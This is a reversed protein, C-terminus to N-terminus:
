RAQAALMEATVDNTVANLAGVVEHPFLVGSYRNIEASARARSQVRRCPRDHTMADFTDAVAILYNELAIEHGKLGFPYGLGDLRKHHQEILLGLFALPTTELLQKGARPHASMFSWGDPTLRGPTQLLETPLTLKGLDHLYAALSLHELRLRSLGLYCGMAAVLQAVRAAHAATAADKRVLQASFRELSSILEAQGTIQWLRADGCLVNGELLIM